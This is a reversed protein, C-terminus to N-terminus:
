RGSYHSYHSHHSEHSFHSAQMVGLPNSHIIGSHELYLPTNQKVNSIKAIKPEPTAHHTFSFTSITLVVYLAGALWILLRRM